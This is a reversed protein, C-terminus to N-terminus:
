GVSETTGAEGSQDFEDRLARRRSYQAIVEESYGRERLIDLLTYGEEQEDDPESKMSM